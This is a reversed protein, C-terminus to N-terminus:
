LFEDFKSPDAIGLFGGLGAILAGRPEIIEAQLRAAVTRLFRYRDIEDGLRMRDCVAEAVPGRDLLLMVVVDQDARGGCRDRAALRRDPHGPRATPESGDHAGLTKPLTVFPILEIQNDFGQGLQLRMRWRWPGILAPVNRVVDRDFRVANAVLQYPQEIVPALGAAAHEDCVYM